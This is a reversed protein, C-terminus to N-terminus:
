IAPQGALLPQGSQTFQQASEHFAAARATLFQAPTPMKAIDEPRFSCLTCLACGAALELIRAQGAPTQAEPTEVIHAFDQESALGAQAVPCDDNFNASMAFINIYYNNVTL